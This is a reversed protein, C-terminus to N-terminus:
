RPFAFVTFAITPSGIEPFLDRTVDTFLDVYWACRDQDESTELDFQVTLSYKGGSWTWKKPAIADLEHYLGRVTQIEPLLGPYNASILLKM